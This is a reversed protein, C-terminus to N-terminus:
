SANRLQTASTDTLMGLVTSLMSLLAKRPVESRATAMGPETTVMPIPAKLLQKLRVDSFRPSPTVLMPGDANACQGRSLRTSGLERRAIPVSAKRLQGSPVMEIGLLVCSAIWDDANEPCFRQKAPSYTTPALRQLQVGHVNLGVM